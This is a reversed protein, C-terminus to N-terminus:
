DTYYKDYTYYSQYGYSYYRYREADARTLAVGAVSAHIDALSRAAEIVADRPTKEWRVVFLIADALRAIVKTDNVPLLPASDIVILDFHSKLGEIFREMAISGLIDPPSGATKFAPLVMASSRPDKVLVQDLTAEGTLLQILGGESGNLGLTEAVTPRRLDADIVLTRQRQQAGLRALSIAVTTKGESPVSSTVLVVRPRQDVNSLVLGMQLGRVAESFSSMPKDVIRDAAQGGTKELGPIEPLTSLVPVGLLREIQHVTRFGADLREALMAFLFGLLLGGPIAVGFSLSKNPFSPTHPLEAKSIIRADPTQIGEQGQAAKFRGLFAEYLQRNSSARAELEKLKVRAKNDVTSEGTLKNLSDQLSGVRARAIAADNGVTQVVRGVEEAIKAQLNRKQSELDLMKPHRPGYKSTLDAEQRLLDTEQGRLTSILPSEVAQTVDEAHGTRQLQLVRAYRAEKEALDSRATVLQGNLEAMQQDVLSTGNVTETLGNTAKYEQVAAEATQVQTSLEQIRDALWVTAKQTADFKANLQDEVYADAIANCIAAAKNPDAADFTILIASSRGQAAVTEHGLLRDIAANRQDLLKQANTKTTVPSPLWHLPNLFYIAATLLGPEGPGFESDDMLHQKDIVRSLLSRSRLIQVQNEISTPDTPLGSLVASVDEVKNQRQDLMVLSKASYLPTLRFLVLATLAVVALATGLIIKKRVRVIRLLDTLDFVTENHPEIDTEHLAHRNDSDGLIRQVNM